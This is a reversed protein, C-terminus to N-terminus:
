ADWGAKRMGDIMRELIERAVMPTGAKFQELSVPRLRLSEQMTRRARDLDGLHAASAAAIRYAGAANPQRQISKEAWELAREYDEAAFYAWAMGERPVFALPDLPSLSMARTLSKIAEVHEGVVALHFGYCNNAMHHSPNLEAGEKFAGIMRDPQGTVAFAHGLAHHSEAGLEDLTVAKESFELLAQISRDPSDSWGNVLERFHALALGAYAYGWQPDLEIARAFHERAQATDEATIQNFHWWGRMAASWADLNEPDQHMAREIESHLLAPSMAGVIAEAIEDQLALVDLVDAFERDYQNAWVHQGTTADILQVVIRVRDQVKRVSGEVVYRAGLERGVQQADNPLDPNFSSGRAIVPFSRFSALRTILDEALGNAFNSQEPDGSLNELPLVAIAPRGSFGPVAREAPPNVFWFALGLVLLAGIASTAWLGM